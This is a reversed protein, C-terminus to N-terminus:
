RQAKMARCARPSCGTQCGGAAAATVGSGATGVGCLLCPSRLRTCSTPPHTHQSGWSRADHTCCCLCVAPDPHLRLRQRYEPFRATRVGLAGRKATATQATRTGHRIVGPLACYTRWACRAQCKSCTRHAHRAQDSWSARLVYALREASPMQQLHPARATGSWELIRATRVGLAGRKANAALAARTGHRVVGSHACYTRWASRAQCNCCARYVHHTGAAAILYGLWIYPYFLRLIVRISLFIFIPYYPQM